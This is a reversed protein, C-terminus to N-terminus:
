NILWAIGCGVSYYKGLNKFDLDAELDLQVRRSVLWTVGFETMYKNDEVPHLYNYTEVFTSVSNSVNFILALALFTTPTATEGNWELGANYGISFWDSVTNEFLLYMAPALHSPLLDKSGVHSSKLEALLGIAPLVGAGEYVKLKTGISLPAVGFTLKSLNDNRYMLFDTGVRLEMNEFIGFRLMTSNLTFTQSGDPSSEFAFGNDWGLKHFQIVETGFTHGPRDPVVTPLENQAFCISASLTLIFLLTKTKM